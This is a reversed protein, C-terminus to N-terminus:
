RCRVLNPSPRGEVRDFRPTVRHVDDHDDLANLFEVVQARSELARPFKAYLSNRFRHDELGRWPRSVSDLDMIETLFARRRVRPFKKPKSRNLNRLALRLPM